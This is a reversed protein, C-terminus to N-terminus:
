YYMIRVRDTRGASAVTTRLANCLDGEVTRATDDKKGQRQFGFYNNGSYGVRLLFTKRRIESVDVTNCEKENSINMCQLDNLGYQENGVVFNPIKECFLLNNWFNTALNWDISDVLSSYNMKPLIYSFPM